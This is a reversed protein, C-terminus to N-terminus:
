KIEFIEQIHELIEESKPANQLAKKHLIVGFTDLYAPNDPELELAAKVLNLAENLNSDKRYYIYALSNMATANKKTESLVKKYMDEAENLRNQRELAYGLMNQLQTDYQFEALVMKLYVEADAFKNLKLLSLAYMKPLSPISHGKDLECLKAFIKSAKDINGLQYLCMSEYFLLDLDGPLINIAEELTALADIHKKARYLSVAKAKLDLVKDLEDINLEVEKYEDLLASINQELDADRSAKKETKKGSFDPNKSDIIEDLLSTKKKGALNSSQLIQELDNWNNTTPQM